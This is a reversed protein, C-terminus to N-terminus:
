GYLARGDVTLTRMRQAEHQALDALRFWAPSMANGYNNVLQLARLDDTMDVIAGHPDRHREVLVVARRAIPELRPDDPSWRRAAHIDIYLQAVDEDDLLQNKRDLWKSVRDPYLAVLLIWTDRELTVQEDTLGLRELRELYAVVPEPLYLRNGPRLAKLRARTAKLQDIQKALATDLADIALDLEPPLADLLDPIQALPVGADALTKIRTLDIVAQADYRRYGSADRAPEALLGRHHYHRVARVTVGVYAALQSITLM